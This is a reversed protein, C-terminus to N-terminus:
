IGYMPASAKMHSPTHTRTHGIVAKAHRLLSFKGQLSLINRSSYFVEKFFFTIKTAYKARDCHMQEHKNFPM